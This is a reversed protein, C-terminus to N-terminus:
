KADSYTTGTGISCEVPIGLDVATTMAKYVEDKAVDLYEDDVELVVEDHVTLVFKVNWEPHKWIVDRQVKVMGLRLMDAAYGQILFNFAQRLAHKSFEEFRRRRGAANTVYGYLKIRQECEKFGARIGTYTDLFKDLLEKAKEVSIGLNRSIGYETSGYVVPFNFGNKGQQRWVANESKAKEYADTGETLQEETLGLDFLLNATVLHLDLGKRFADLLTPDQTVYALIRLEQGAYDPVIFSRGEPAVFCSRCEIGLVANLKRLNQMNPNSSSLRGTAAVTDNFSCRIRGDPSLHEKMKKTFKDKIDKAMKFILLERCFPCEAALGGIEGDDLKTGGLVIKDLKYYEDGVEKGDRVLENGKNTLETLQIGFKEILLPIVQPNSNFNIQSIREDEWFGKQVIIDRGLL